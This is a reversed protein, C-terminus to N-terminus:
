RRRRRVVVIGVLAVAVAAVIVPAPNRQVEAAIDHAAEAAADAAQDARAKAEDVKDKAQKKVDTMEAVAAVTQGLEERTRETEAEIQEPSLPERHGTGETPGDMEREAM